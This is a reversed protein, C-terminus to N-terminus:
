PGGGNLRKRDLKTLLRGRAVRIMRLIVIVAVFWRLILTGVGSPGFAGDIDTIRFLCIQGWALGIFFPVIGLLVLVSPQWEWLCKRRWAQVFFLLGTGLMGIAIVASAWAIMTNMSM